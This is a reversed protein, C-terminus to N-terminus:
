ELFEWVYVDYPSFIEEMIKANFDQPVKKVRTYTIVYKDNRESSDAGKEMQVIEAPLNKDKDFWTYKFIRDDQWKEKKCKVYGKTNFVTSGESCVVKTLKGSKYKYHFTEAGDDMVIKQLFGKRNYYYTMKETYGNTGKYNVTVKGKGYKVNTIMNGGTEAIVRGKQDYKYKSVGKITKGDGIMDMRILRGKADYKFLKKDTDCKVSVMQGKRNYSYRVTDMLSTGRKGTRYWKISAPKYVMRTKAFAPVAFVFLFFAALCIFRKVTEKMSM